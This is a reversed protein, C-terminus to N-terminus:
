GNAFCVANQHDLTSSDGLDPRMGLQEVAAAVVKAQIGLLEAILEALPIAAQGNVLVRGSDLANPRLYADTIGQAAGSSLTSPRSLRVSPENIGGPALATPRLYAM